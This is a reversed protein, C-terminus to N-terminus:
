RHLLRASPDGAGPVAPVGGLWPRGSPHRTSGPTKSSRGSRQRRWRSASRRSSATSAATAGRSMRVPWGCCWWRGFMVTRRRVDPVAAGRCGDWRRRVIDSHWRLITAPTVILRMAALRDAPLTGALLGAVGPGAVDIEFSRSAARALRCRTSPAVDLDRRGEV